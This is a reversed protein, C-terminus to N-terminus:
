RASLQTVLESYSRLHERYDSGKGAALNPWHSDFLHRHREILDRSALLTYIEELRDLDPRAIGL